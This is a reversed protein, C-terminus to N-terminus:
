RPVRTAVRRRREAPISTPTTRLIAMRIRLKFRVRDYGPPPTVRVVYDDPPLDEFLYLGGANTQQSPVASASHRTGPRADCRQRSDYFLEVTAGPIGPENADQIGDQNHDLWVYSGLLMPPPPVDLVEVDGGVGKFDGATSPLYPVAASPELIYETVNDGTTTYNHPFVLMGHPGPESIIDGSTLRKDWTGDRRDYIGVGGYGDDPGLNDAPYHIRPNDNVTDFRGSGGQQLVYYTGGHNHSTAFNDQCGTRLGAVLLGDPLFDLSSISIWGGITFGGGVVGNGVLTTQFVAPGSFEGGTLPIAYLDATLQDSGVTLGLGHTGFYLTAGDPSVALGYPIENASAFGASGNDLTLPDLSSLVAGALDLRYIRGDEFNSVFFQQNAADYTVNGLAPGTMRAVTDAAECDVHTFSSSQQPLQAFVAAQGTVADIKYITGAAGLDNAGGGIDGYRIIATAGFFGAGYHSSATLYINRDPDLEVGFVNGIQDVHWSPDHYDPANYLPRGDAYPVASLDFLGFAFRNAAPLSQITGCTAAAIGPGDFNWSGSGSGM